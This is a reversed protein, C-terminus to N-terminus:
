RLWCLRKAHHFGCALREAKARDRWEDDNSLLFGSAVLRLLMDCSSKSCRLLRVRTRKETSEWDRASLKSTMRAALISSGDRLYVDPRKANRIIYRACSLSRALFRLLICSCKRREVDALLRLFLQQTFIVQRLCYRHLSQTFFGCNHPEVQTKKLAYAFAPM